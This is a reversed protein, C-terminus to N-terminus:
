LILRDHFTGVYATVSYWIGEAVHVSAVLEKDESDLRTRAKRATEGAEKALEVRKGYDNEELAARSLLRSGQVLTQVWQKDTDFESGADISSTESDNGSTATQRAKSVVQIYLRLTRLALDRDGSASFLRSM